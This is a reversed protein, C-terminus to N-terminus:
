KKITPQPESEGLQYQKAIQQPFVQTQFDTQAFMQNGSSLIASLEAKGSSNSVGKMRIRKSEGPALSELRFAVIRRERDLWADRDFRTITLESPVRVNVDVPGIDGSTPNLVEIVVDEPEGQTMTSNGLIRIKLKSMAQGNTALDDSLQSGRPEVITPQDNFRKSNSGPEDISQAARENEGTPRTLSPLQALRPSASNDDTETSRAEAPDDRDHAPPFYVNSAGLYSISSSPPTIGDLRTTQEMPTANRALRSRAPLAIEGRLVAGLNPEVLVEEIRTPLRTISVQAVAFDAGFFVAIAAITSATSLHHKRM